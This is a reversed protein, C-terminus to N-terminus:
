SNPQVECRWRSWAGAQHLHPQVAPLLSQPPQPSLVSAVAGQLLTQLWPYFGPHQSRSYRSVEAWKPGKGHFLHRTFLCCMPCSTQWKLEALPFFFKYIYLKKICLGTLLSRSVFNKKEKGNLFLLMILSTIRQVRSFICLPSKLLLM